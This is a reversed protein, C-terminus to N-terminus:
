KAAHDTSREVSNVFSGVAAAFENPEEFHGFHGSRELTVLQSGVIGASLLTAYKPSCVFDRQGVLVLTPAKIESLRPRVDYPAADKGRTPGVFMRTAEAFHDVQEKHGSYNAVYLGIGRRWSATADEDTKAIHALEAVAARYWPEMAFMKARDSADSAFEVNTVPSTDYLVLGRVNAAHALTYELAVFGGYSHGLVYTEGLGLAARLEYLDSAYRQRTYGADDKLRGSDGTGIPEVYVMTLHKEVEPMRISEWGLGPGGPQVLCVPGTGAVHYRLAVGNVTVTHDGPTMSSGAPANAHPACAALTALTLALGVVCARMM